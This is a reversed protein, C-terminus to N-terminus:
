IGAICSITCAQLNSPARDCKHNLARKKCVDKKSFRDFRGDFIIEEPEANISKALKQRATEVILKAAKGYAHTSSPNGFDDKNLSDCIIKSVRPDIPTTANYDLYIPKM